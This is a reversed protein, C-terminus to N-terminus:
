PGRGDPQLSTECHLIDLLHCLYKQCCLILPLATLLPTVVFRHFIGDYYRRNKAQLLQYRIVNDYGKTLNLKRVVGSATSTPQTRYTILKKAGAIM